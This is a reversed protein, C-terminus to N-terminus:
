WLQCPPSLLEKTSLLVRVRLRVTSRLLPTHMPIAGGMVGCPNHSATCRCVTCAKKFTSVLSDGVLFEDRHSICDNKKKKFFVRKPSAPRHDQVMSRCEHPSHILARSWVCCFVNSLFALWLRGCSPASRIALRMSHVQRFVRVPGQRRANQPNVCTAPSQYQRISTNPVHRDVIRTSPSKQLARDPQEEQTSSHCCLHGRTFNAYFLLRSCPSSCDFALIAHANSNRWM